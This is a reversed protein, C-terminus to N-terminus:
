PAPVTPDPQRLDVDVRGSMGPTVRDAVAALARPEIVVKVPVRQVIRTFNGTANDPPLLSFEAGSAPSFSDIRGPLDVGPLADIRVSARQGIRLGRLQTEKFNAVLWVGPQVIALLQQGAQVHAGVEVSKRGVRGAVPAKITAYGHQLRVERMQAALLQKRALTAGRASEAARVKALAAVALNQQSAREAEASDRAAVAGDLETKSVAQIDRGYLALQRRAELDARTFQAKARDVLAELSRAEARGQEIQADIQRLEADLGLLQAHVQDVRVASDEPDLQILVDGAKVQQNDDVLVKTVIGAVRPSVISVHGQLYANDTAEIHYARWAMRGGALAAALLLVAAVVLRTRRTRHGTPESAM